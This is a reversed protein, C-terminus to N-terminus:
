SNVPDLIVNQNSNAAISTGYNMNSIANAILQSDNSRERLLPEVLTSRNSSINQINHSDEDEDKNKVISYKLDVILFLIMGVIQIFALLYFYYNLHCGRCNIDDNDKSSYIFTKLSNLVISGLFSGIGKRKKKLSILKGELLKFKFLCNIKMGTFFYFLGMIISQM